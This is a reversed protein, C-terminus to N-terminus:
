PWRATGSPEGAQACRVAECAGTGRAECCHLARGRSDEFRVGWSGAGLELTAFGWRDSFFQLTAADPYVGEM